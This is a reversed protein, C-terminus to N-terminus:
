EHKHEQLEQIEQRLQNEVEVRSQYFLTFALTAFGILLLNIIPYVWKLMTLSGRTQNLFRDYKQFKEIKSSDLKELESRVKELKHFVQDERTRRASKESIFKEELRALREYLKKDDDSM